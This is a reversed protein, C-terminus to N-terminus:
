RHGVNLFAVVFIQSGVSPLELRIVGLGSRAEATLDSPVAHAAAIARGLNMVVVVPADILLAGLVQRRHTPITVAAQMVNRLRHRVFIL